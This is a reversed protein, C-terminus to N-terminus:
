RGSVTDGSTPHSAAAHSLLVCKRSAGGGARSPYLFTIDGFCRIEVASRPQIKVTGRMCSFKGEMRRRLRKKEEEADRQESKNFQSNHIFGVV